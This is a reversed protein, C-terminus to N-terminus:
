ARIVEVPMLLEAAFRNAEAEMAPLDGDAEAITADAIFRGMNSRHLVFHGLEHAATFRRRPLIDAASVFAKGFHGAFFLFGALATQPDGMDDVPIADRRLEDAVAGLTMGPLTAHSVNLEAFFRDLPVPGRRAPDVPIGLDRRLGAITDSTM